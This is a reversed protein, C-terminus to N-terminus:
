MYFNIFCRPSGYAKAIFRTGEKSTRANREIRESEGKEINGKGRENLRERKEQGREM